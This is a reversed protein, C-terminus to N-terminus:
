ERTEVLLGGGKVMDTGNESRAIGRVFLIATTRRPARTTLRSARFREAPQAAPM